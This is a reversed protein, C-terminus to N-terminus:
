QLRLRPRTWATAPHIATRCSVTSLVAWSAYGLPRPSGLLPSIRRHEASVHTINGRKDYDVTAQIKDLWAKARQQAETEAKSEHAPPAEVGQAVQTCPVMRFLLLLCIAVIVISRNM